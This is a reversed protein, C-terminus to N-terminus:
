EAVDLITNILEAHSWVLPSVGTHVGTEPHIQESLVGSPLTHQLTWEILEKASNVAGKRVYYQALWLTTVFWPNGKYQPQSAFYYDYEYRPVGGNPASNLLDKEITEAGAVIKKKDNYYDFMFAGYWSSVDLTGDFALNGDEQLLFSKRYAQRNVDFFVDQSDFLRKSADLWHAHDAEHGFMEAFTSAVILAKYTIATTYTHTAFKEEWLDYSAHPLNTQRDIFGSLFDAAPKIFKLYLPEIFDTDDKNYDYYEGLMFLVIATEDEQIALEKHRGHLLPHWTSGIAKDPQYKHMMYGDKHMIDACFGFFRKAELKYGLRILPWLVFAGDRPWVYSYYDRGYNYISSDCSAIVGGHKDAHAKIILLSRTVAETYAEPVKKRQLSSRELWTHWRKRTKEIEHEIGSKMYDAHIKDASSQSDSAIVWYAVAASDFSAVECSFRIVSDVGGHEVASGSLEGDEADKYTGQKGEIGFSGVAFQDFADGTQKHVGGILLSVRGKYDLIYKDEPEYLATDARGARSIQFVQHMFLRITRTNTAHNHITINRLFVDKDSVVCDELALEIGLNDSHMSITSVLAEPEFSVQISWSGDDVWSFVGDVWVGIKHHVSRATTLNELGVYPYYFDHVLGHENLGVTLSGNGLIVPRGM